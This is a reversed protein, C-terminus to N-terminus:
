GIILYIVYKLWLSGGPLMRPRNAKNYKCDRRKMQASIGDREACQVFACIFLFSRSCIHREMM